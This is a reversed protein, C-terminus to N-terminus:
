SACISHAVFVPFGWPLVVSGGTLRTLKTLWSLWSARSLCVAALKADREMGGVGGRREATFAMSHIYKSTVRDKWRQRQDVVTRGDSFSWLRVDM